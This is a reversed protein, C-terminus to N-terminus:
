TTIAKIKLGYDDKVMKAFEAMFETGRDLTIRQPFPYRTFWTKECIDAVEAATKNEIQQMKFWGTAPDTMTLCWLKLDKNGKRQIKYPGILDVCLTDWPNEEATKAPLKGYKQNTTKAKQCLECKRCTAIVMTRLGKWDFHQRITEERRTKGPHCLIEHYWDITKQEQLSPPLSIKGNHSILKHDKDIGRNTTDTYSSKNKLKL